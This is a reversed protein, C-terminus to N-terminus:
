NRSKNIYLQLEESIGMAEGRRYEELIGDSFTKLKM